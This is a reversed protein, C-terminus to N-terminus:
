DQKGNVRAAVALLKSSLKLRARRSAELNVEIAIKGDRQALNIMGGAGLFDDTEGVTLVSTGAMQQVLDRTRERASEPIFLIHCGAPPAVGTALRKLVYPRGNVTRNALMQELEDAVKSEGSVAVVVASNTDAFAEVPWDVYKPFNMLFAAKIQPESFVPEAAPVSNVGILGLWVVLLALGYHLGASWARREKRGAVFGGEREIKKGPLEPMNIPCRM